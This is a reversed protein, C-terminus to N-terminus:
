IGGWTELFVNHSSLEPATIDCIVFKLYHGLLRPISCVCVCMDSGPLQVPLEGFHVPM